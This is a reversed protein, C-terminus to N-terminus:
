NCIDKGEVSSFFVNLQFEYGIVQIRATEATANLRVFAQFAPTSHTSQSSVPVATVILRGTHLGESLPAFSVQIM